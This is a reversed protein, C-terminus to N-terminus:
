DESARSKPESVAIKKRQTRVQHFPDPYQPSKEKKKSIDSIENMLAGDKRGLCRRLTEGAFVM